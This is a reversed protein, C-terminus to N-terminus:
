RAILKTVHSGSKVIYIGAAPLALKSLAGKRVLQGTITYVEVTAGNDVYLTLGEIRLAPKSEDKNISGIATIDPDKPQDNFDAESVLKIEDASGEPVILYAHNRQLYQTTDSKIFGISGDSLKGLIRMTSKNFPTLNKHKLSTNHFYVGYLQNGLIASASGGLDLRNASPTSGACKIIVPTGEPVTGKIEKLAAQGNGVQTVYYAKMGESACSFPFGAYITAYHEGGAEIEPRVGFYENGDSSMKHFIWLNFLDNPKGQSTAYGQENKITMESNTGDGIYRTLGSNRGFIRHTVPNTSKNEYISVPYDIIANVGTGQTQFDYDKKQGTLDKVYIVSAPDSITKDHGKWLEIAGLEATTAQMNLSGRNDAVYIYRETMYNQVRYYGEGSSVQAFSALTIASFILSTIISKM